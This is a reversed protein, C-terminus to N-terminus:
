GIKHAVFSCGDVGSKTNQTAGFAGMFEIYDAAAFNYITTVVTGNATSAGANGAGMKSIYTTGNLRIGAWSAANADTVVTGTVQYYGATTFTIRTNNTVNDHMTDTDFAETDFAVAVLTTGISQAASATVRCGKLSPAAATQFTPDVGAGNSTLVQGSTGASTVAIAGTGNGILVGADGLTTAGTGGNAVTVPTSISSKSFASNPM